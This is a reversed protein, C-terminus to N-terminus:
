SKSVPYTWIGDGVRIQVIYLGAPWAGADVPIVSAGTALSIQRTYIKRGTVDSINLGVIEAAPLTLTLTLMQQVPNPYLSLAGPHGATTVGTSTYVFAASTNSCGNANTVTVTYSGSQTPTYSASTAGAIVGGNLYWSYAAFGAGASLVGASATITVAPPAAIHIDAGNDTGTVVPMSSVVRIRYGVGPVTGSLIFVGISGSVVSGTTGIDVPAAFSGSADSLQATFSNGASYSGTATYPILYTSGTCLSLPATTSITNIVVPADAIKVLFADDSNGGFSNQFGGSAIGSTSGTSGAMYISSGYAACSNGADIGTGGFYSGWARNGSSDFKVLFADTNTGAGGGFTNQFGGSAIGTTSNASGTMYVNGTTDTICFYGREDATGGYYTAWLRNGTTNFKVLFADDLGGFMNQFGGSAIGTSSGAIGALYPNGYPDVTCSYGFDDNGGGYYTGWMRNGLSDFKVLFADENGGMTNQFGGSAIGSTSYTFGALFVNNNQDVACGMGREGATGGYYTGWLRNGTSSFKVLFADGDPTFSSTNAYATQFAGTSAIGSSSMTHGALYVNGSKDTACAYGNEGASGGYYTGWQRSGTSDFKVLFADLGGAATTQFGNASAIATTSSTIGTMYINGNKDTTCALAQDNATGGYYTAWLRNGASNFKVLYADGGGGAINQYGGAALSGGSLSTSSGAMYVNGSGDTSCTTGYDDASTGYYTAWSVSPDIRLSKTKDYNSIAFSITGDAAQAFRTAVAQGGTFSVPAAERVEGLSTTMLLEGATTLSIQKADSVKIKISAPDAGPHILFDYKLGHDNSYLVWDIGPYVDEMIIRGYSPVSTIGQPCTALYYNETYDNKTEKRIHPAVNAGQLSFTFRHTATRIQGRLVEQMSMDKVTREDKIFGDPYITQTFQYYIGSATIFIETGHSHAIFLIDPQQNNGSAAVQGRNEIFLLGASNLQKNLFASPNRQSQAHVALPFALMFCLLLSRLLLSVTM